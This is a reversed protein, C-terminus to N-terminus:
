GETGHHRMQSKSLMEALGLQVRDSWLFLLPSSVCEAGGGVELSAGADPGGGVAGALVVDVVTGGVVVDVVAGGSREALWHEM